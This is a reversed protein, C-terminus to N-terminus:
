RVTLFDFVTKYGLEKWTLLKNEELFLYKEIYTSQTCSTIVKMGMITESLVMLRSCKEQDMLLGNSRYFNSKEHTFSTDGFEFDKHVLDYVVNGVQGHCWQAGLDVNGKGFPVSHM